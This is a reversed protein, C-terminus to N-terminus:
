ATPAIRIRPRIIMRTVEREAANKAAHGKREEKEVVICNKKLNKLFNGLHNHRPSDCLFIRHSHIPLRVNKHTTDLATIAYAVMTSEAPKRAKIQTGTAIVMAYAACSSIVWLGWSNFTGRKTNKTNIVIADSSTAIGGKVPMFCRSDYGMTEDRYEIPNSTSKKVPQTPLPIALDVSSVLSTSAM